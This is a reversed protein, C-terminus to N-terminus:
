EQVGENLVDIQHNCIAIENEIKELENNIEQLREKKSEQEKKDMNQIAVLEASLKEKQLELNEIRTEYSNLDVLYQSDLEVISEEKFDRYDLTFTYKLEGKVIEFTTYYTKKRMGFQLIYDTVMTSDDENEPKAVGKILTAPMEEGEDNKVICTIEEDTEAICYELFSFQAVETEKNWLYDEGIKVVTDKYIMEDTNNLTMNDRTDPMWYKTSILFIIVMLFVIFGFILTKNYGDKLIIYENEKKFFNM